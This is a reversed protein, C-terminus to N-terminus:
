STKRKPIDSEFTTSEEEGESEADSLVTDALSVADDSDAKDKGEEKSSQIIAYSLLDKENSLLKKEKNPESKPKLTLASGIGRFLWGYYFGSMSLLLSCTFFPDVPLPFGGSFGLSAYHAQLFSSLPLKSVTDKVGKKDPQSKLLWSLKQNTEEKLRSWFDQTPLCSYFFNWRYEYGREKSMRWSICVGIRQQITSSYEICTTRHFTPVEYGRITLHRKKPKRAKTSAGGRPSDVVATASVASLNDATNSMEIFGEVKGDIAERKTTNADEGGNEEAISEALSQTTDNKVVLKKAVFSLIRACSLWLRWPSLFVWLLSEVVGRVFASTVALVWQIKWVVGGLFWKIAELPLSANLFTAIVWPFGFYTSSTIFPMAAYRDCFEFNSSLPIRFTAGFARRNLLSKTFSWGFGKFNYQDQIVSILNPHMNKDQMKTPQKKKQLLSSSSSSSTTTTTTAAVRRRDLSSGEGATRGYNVVGSGGGIRTLSRVWRRRRRGLGDYRGVYYDWGFGDRMEGGM